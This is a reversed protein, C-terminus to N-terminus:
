DEPAPATAGISEARRWRIEIIAGPPEAMEAPPSEAGRGGGHGTGNAFSLRAGTRELLTRAIFLGLGMGAYGTEREGAGGRARSTVYPEALKPLIEPGFGPGDDGVAIALADGDREVDIWVTSRAFDVANQIINRLGHVLEPSRTVTPQAVAGDGAPLGDVRM